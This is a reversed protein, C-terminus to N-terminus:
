LHKQARLMQKGYYYTNTNADTIKLQWYISNPNDPLMVTAKWTGANTSVSTATNTSTTTGDSLLLKLTVGNLKQVASNTGAGSYAVCNTFLVTSGATYITNCTYEVSVTARLNTAAVTQPAVPDAASASLRFCMAAITAAAILRNM